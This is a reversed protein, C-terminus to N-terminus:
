TEVELRVHQLGERAQLSRNRLRVLETSSGPFDGAPSNQLRHLAVESQLLQDAYQYYQRSHQGPVQYDRDTCQQWKKDPALSPSADSFYDTGKIPYAVTTLFIDPNSRKVHEITAEIDALEEGLYGWMLFMGTQIGREKCLHVAQQVEEVTVGREMADLIPQSGSESGIWVRFCRIEALADAVKENMRDARTICEFPILLNRRKIEDAYKFLWGPHVTFVDDAMWLMDPHYRTLLWEVEDAVCDPRRRRHTKGYVSHSCWRCHYACGRAAILSVSGTGHHRRWADMYRSIDISERDPWPLSDINPILPRPPTECISGTEDRFAIGNVRCLDGSNGSVLVPILEELTIEGEGNVIVDAGSSLYEAVYNSPEPGGLVVKWGSEKAARIIELVTSRTLLNSYIGLIGPSGVQLRSILDQRLHFTSDFLEVSHGKSKLYSSIYLLGLPPYPKMIQLEKPDEQIFYGHTLLLHM